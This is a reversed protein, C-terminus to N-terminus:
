SLADDSTNLKELPTNLIREMDRRAKEDKERKKKLAKIVLIVVVLLVIAALLLPMFSRTITMLRDASKILTQAVVEDENLDYNQYNMDFYDLVIEIGEADLVTRVSGGRVSHPESTILTCDMETQVTHGDTLPQTM